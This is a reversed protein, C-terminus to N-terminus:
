AVISWKGKCFRCEWGDDGFIGKTLLKHNQWCMPCHYHRFGDDNKKDLYDRYMKKRAHKIQKKNKM